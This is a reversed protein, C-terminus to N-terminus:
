AIFLAQDWFTDGQWSLGLLQQDLHHIPGHSLCEKLDLKSILAGPGFNRALAVANDTTAYCLSCLNPHIGDNVSFNQPFSLDHILCFKGPQNPKPIIGIPSTQVAIWASPPVLGLRQRSVEESIYTSATEPNAIVSQHNAACRETYRRPFRDFWLLSITFM